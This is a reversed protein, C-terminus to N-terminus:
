VYPKPIPGLDEGRPTDLNLEARQENAYSIVLMVLWTADENTLRGSDREGNIITLMPFLYSDRGAPYVDRWHGALTELEARAVPDFKALPSTSM